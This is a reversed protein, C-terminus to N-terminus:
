REEVNKGREEEDERDGGRGMPEAQRSGCLLGPSYWPSATRQLPASGWYIECYIAETGYM